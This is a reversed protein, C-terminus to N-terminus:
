TKTQHNRSGTEPKKLPTFFIRTKSEPERGAALFNKQKANPAYHMAEPVKHM